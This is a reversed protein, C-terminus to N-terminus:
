TTSTSPTLYLAPATDETADAILAEAVVPSLKATTVLVTLLKSRNIKKQPEQLRASLTVNDCVWAHADGAGKLRANFDPIAKIVAEKAADYRQNAKTRVIGAVLLEGITAHQTHFLEVESNSKRNIAGVNPDPIVTGSVTKGIAAVADQVRKTFTTGKTANSAKAM